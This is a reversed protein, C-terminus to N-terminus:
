SFGVILTQAGSGALGARLSRHPSRLASTAGHNHLPTTVTITSGVVAATYTGPPPPLSCQTDDPHPGHRRFRWAM